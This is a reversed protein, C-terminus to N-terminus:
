RGLSPTIRLLWQSRTSWLGGLLLLIMTVVSIDKGITRPPTDEFRLLLYGDGHPVPVTMRGLPGTEEPIINLPRVVKGHEGDLLYAHWGPYYFQNFVVRQESDRQNYFYVEEMVTNHAVSNLAFTKYDLPYTRNAYDIMTTVPKVPGGTEDQRIYEDAIPSWKPIEKTWRTSGTMEDSSQQFRMLGALSVSGEAPERVEVRVYPYSGLLILGILALLPLNLGDELRTQRHAILGALISVCLATISFWRWPFQAARLVGKILPFDWLPAAWTLGVFTAVVAAIVLCTIEWRLRGASKWIMGVGLVAFVVPVIGLQFGIPDNPGVISTGFGWRPSFLQFFYVFHGHFDYRVDFWQDVRVDKYEFLVPLWFIASLGVGALLGLGPVFARQVWLWIRQGLKQRASNGEEAAYVFVLVVVYLGLLPTFLVIVLNSTLMLGAYSVAAGVVWRYSPRVIAQRVTWLCLPLWLFAMSESLNARVYLNLLHYPIYVYALAAIVASPRGLWSRIYLYMAAASGVISLGFVTEIAGTYGFHLFHLLLEAVFHSFGGYINFFPYGYGFAFDPSWRPWWIGDQVVRDFEFLFYVHHRADNAGWFYGPLMFPAVAFSTLALTLWFLGDRWLAVPSSSSWETKSLIPADREMDSVM